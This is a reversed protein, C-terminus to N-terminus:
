VVLDKVFSRTLLQHHDSSNSIQDSELYSTGLVLGGVLTLHVAYYVNILAICLTYHM